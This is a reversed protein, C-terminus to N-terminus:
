SKQPASGLIKGTQWLGSLVDSQLDREFLLVLGKGM